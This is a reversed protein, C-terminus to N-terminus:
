PKLFLRRHFLKKKSLPVNNVGVVTDEHMDQVVRVGHLHLGDEAHLCDLDLLKKANGPTTVVQEQLSDCPSCLIWMKILDDLQCWKPNTFATDTEVHLKLGLSGVVTDEHMDQVVCVGHLHLGDEAHLCDLDVQMQQLDASSVVEIYCKDTKMCCDEVEVVTKIMEIHILEDLEVNSM